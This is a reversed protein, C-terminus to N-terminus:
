SSRPGDATSKSQGLCRVFFETGYLRDPHTAAEEDTLWLIEAVENRDPRLQDWPTLLRGHFGYLLLPRDPCRWRWVDALIEVKASLEEQLERKAAQVPPEGIEIGGGPFCIKLPALVKESRRILMWRGDDRRCGVVAGHVLGDPHERRKMAPVDVM